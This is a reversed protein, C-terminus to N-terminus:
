RRALWASFVLADLTAAADADLAEAGCRDCTAIALDAPLEIDVGRFRVVRGARAQEVLSGRACSPCRRADGARAAVIRRWAGLTLTSRLIIAHRAPPDDQPAFMLRELDVRCDDLAPALPSGAAVADVSAARLRAGLEALEARERDGDGAAM